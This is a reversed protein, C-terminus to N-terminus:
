DDDEEDGKGEVEKDGEKMIRVNLVEPQKTSKILGILVEETIALPELKDDDDGGGVYDLPEAM